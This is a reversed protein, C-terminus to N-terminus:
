TSSTREDAPGAEPTLPPHEASGLEQLEGLPPEERSVEPATSEWPQMPPAIPPMLHLENVLHRVEQRAVLHSLGARVGLNAHGLPDLATLGVPFFERYVLREMLGPVIRFGAKGAMAWLAQGVQRENRSALPSYRNRVVV